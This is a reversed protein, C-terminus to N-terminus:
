LLFGAIVIISLNRKNNTICFKITRHLYGYRYSTHIYEGDFLTTDRYNLTRIEAVYCYTDGKDINIEIKDYSKVNSFGTM